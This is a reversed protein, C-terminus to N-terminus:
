SVVTTVSFEASDSGIIVIYRHDEFIVGTDPGEKVVSYEHHLGGIVASKVV